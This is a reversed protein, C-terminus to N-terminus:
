KSHRPNGLEVDLRNYTAQVMDIDNLHSAVALEIVVNAVAADVRLRDASRHAHVLADLAEDDGGLAFHLDLASKLFPACRDSPLQSSLDGEEQTALTVAKNQLESM